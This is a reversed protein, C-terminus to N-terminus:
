TLGPTTSKRLLLADLPVWFRLWDTINDKKIEGDEMYMKGRPQRHTYVHLCALLDDEYDEIRVLPFRLDAVIPFTFISTNLDDEGEYYTVSVHEDSSSTVEYHFKGHTLEKCVNRLDTVSILYAQDIEM